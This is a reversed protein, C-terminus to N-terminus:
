PVTDDQLCNIPINVLAEDIFLSVPERVVWSDRHLIHRGAAIANSVVPMPFDPNSPLMLGYVPVDRTKM